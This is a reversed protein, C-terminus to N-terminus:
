VNEDGDINRKLYGIDTLNMIQIEFIDHGLLGIDGSDEVIDNLRQIFGVREDNLKLSDFYVVVDNTITDNYFYQYAEALKPWKYYDMVRYSVLMTCFLETNNIINIASFYNYRFLESKLINIDFMINHAVIKSFKYHHFIRNICNLVDIHNLGHRELYEETIKHIKISEESIKFNDPKIFYTKKEIINNNNDLIIYSISLLRAGDFDSLNEFNFKKNTRLPLGSTETDFVFKYNM